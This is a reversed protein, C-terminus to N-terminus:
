GHEDTALHSRKEREPGRCLVLIKVFWLIRRYPEEPVYGMRAKFANLDKRIDAGRFLIQGSTPELLGTVMKVTRSKGSGNPGVYGLIEGPEVSFSVGKVAPIGRYDETLGPAELV